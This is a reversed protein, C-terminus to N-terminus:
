SRLPTSASADLDRMAIRQRGLQLAHDGHEAGAGTIDANRQRLACLADAKGDIHHVVERMGGEDKGGDDIAAVDDNGDAGAAGRGHHRAAHAFPDLRRQRRPDAIEGAEDAAEAFRDM